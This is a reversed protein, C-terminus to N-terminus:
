FNTNTQEYPRSARFMVTVIVELYEKMAIMSSIKLEIKSATQKFESLM